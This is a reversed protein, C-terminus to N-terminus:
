QMANVVPVSDVFQEFHTIKGNELQWHHVVRAIFRQGTEKYIGSYSGLAIVHNGQAIYQEVEIKYNIWRTALPTFVNDIIAKKGQYTGALPFGSAEIWIINEDLSAMLNTSNEQATKGQYTSKIINLNNMKDESEQCANLSLLMIFACLIRMM